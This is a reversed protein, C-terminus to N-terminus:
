HDHRDVMLSLPRYLEIKTNLDVPLSNTYCAHQFLYMVQVLKMNLTTAIFQLQSKLTETPMCRVNETLTLLLSTYLDEPVNLSSSHQYCERLWRLNYTKKSNFTNEDCQILSYGNNEWYAQEIQFKSMTRSVRQASTNKRCFESSPKYYMPQLVNQGSRIDRKLLVFDTTMTAAPIIKTDHDREKYKAPHYINLSSACEITENLPLPYQEYIDLVSPDHEFNIFAELEGNSLLHHTRGTKHSFIIHSLGVSNSNRVTIFPRYGEQQVLKQYKIIKNIERQTIVPQKVIKVENQKSPILIKM